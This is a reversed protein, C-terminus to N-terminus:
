RMLYIAGQGSRANEIGSIKRSDIAISGRNDGNGTLFVKRDAEMSTKSLNGTHFSSTSLTWTYSNGALFTSNRYIATMAMGSTQARFDYTNPPINGITFKAGPEITSTGLQNPGWTSDASPSLNLYYITYSSNNQVTLSIGVSATFDSTTVTWTYTQGTSLSINSRIASQAKGSTQVRLDYAGAPISSLTFQSGAPITSTGLQNNGWSTDSHSSINLYYITYSSNNQIIVKATNSSPFDSTTVSWTYTAGASLTINSRTASQAKGATQVRLDYVGAPISSVTFQSGTSITSSGLQNNGWSTDSHPSINFYYIGYSSNNQIIVTATPPLPPAISVPNLNETTVCNVLLLALAATILGSKAIHSVMSDGKKSKM